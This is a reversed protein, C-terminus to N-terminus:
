FSTQKSELVTGQGIDILPVYNRRLKEGNKKTISFSTEPKQSCMCFATYLHINSGTSRSATKALTAMLFASVSNGTIMSSEHM